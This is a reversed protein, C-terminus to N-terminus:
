QKAKSAALKARARDVATQLQKNKRQALKKKVIDTRQKRIKDLERQKADNKAAQSFRTNGQKNKVLKKAAKKAIRGAGVATKAAAKFAGGIVKGIIEDLQEISLSDADINNELLYAEVLDYQQEETLDFEEHMHQKHKARYAAVAREAGRENAKGPGSTYGKHYAAAEGAAHDHTKYSVGAMYSTKGEPNKLHPRYGGKGFKSKESTAKYKGTDEELEVEEKKLMGARAANHGKSWQLHRSSGKEYPNEEYKQGKRAAKKGEAQAKLDGPTVRGEEIHKKFSQM